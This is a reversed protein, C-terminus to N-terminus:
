CANILIDSYNIVICFLEGLRFFVKNSRLANVFTIVTDRLRIVGEGCTIKISQSLHIRFRSPVLLRFLTEKLRQFKAFFIGLNSGM